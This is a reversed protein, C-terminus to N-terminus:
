LIINGELDKVSILNKYIWSQKYEIEYISWIKIKSKIDDWKDTTYFRSIWKWHENYTVTSEEKEVVELHLMFFPEWNKMLPKGAKTQDTFIIDKIWFKM